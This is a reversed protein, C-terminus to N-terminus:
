RNFQKMLTRLRNGAPTPASAPQVPPALRNIVSQAMERQTFAVPHDWWPEYYSGDRIVHFPYQLTLPLDQWPTEDASDFQSAHEPSLAQFDGWLDEVSNWFAREQEPSRRRGSQGYLHTLRDWYDRADGKLLAAVGEAKTARRQALTARWEVREREALYADFQRAPLEM